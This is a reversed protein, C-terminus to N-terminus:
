RGPSNETEKGARYKKLSLKIEELRERKLVHQDTAGPKKEGYIYIHNQVINGGQEQNQM